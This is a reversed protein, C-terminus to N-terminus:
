LAVKPPKKAKEKEDTSVEFLERKKFKFLGAVINTPFSDISIVLARVNSNYFRRAASLKNETDSLEEQLLKFNESAKLQPYNEAVAFVSKLAETLFNDAKAQGVLGESKLASTRANTLDTLVKREHKVYGKVAEILNPILDLRRKLQVDIDSEAENAQVELSVLRNYSLVAWILVLVVAALVIWLGTAM